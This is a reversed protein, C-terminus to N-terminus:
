KGYKADLKALVTELSVVDEPHDLEDQLRRDILETEGPALAGDFKDRLREFVEWQEAGPLKELLEM